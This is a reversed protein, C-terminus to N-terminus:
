VDLAEQLDRVLQATTSYLGTTKGDKDKGMWGYLATRCKEVRKAPRIDTLQSRQGLEYAERIALKHAEAIPYEVAKHIRALEQRLDLEIDSLNHKM